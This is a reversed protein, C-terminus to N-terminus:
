GRSVAPTLLDYRGKSALYAVLRQDRDPGNHADNFIPRLRGILEVERRGADARDTCWVVEGRVAFQAWTSNKAHSKGRVYLGDTIGIYLLVGDADYHLYLACPKDAATTHQALAAREFDHLHRPKDQGEWEMEYTRILDDLMPRLTTNRQHDYTVTRSLGNRGSSIRATGFVEMLVYFAPLIQADRLAEIADHDGGNHCHAMRGGNIAGFPSGPGHGGHSHVRHCYPCHLVHDNRSATAVAAVVPLSAATGLIM